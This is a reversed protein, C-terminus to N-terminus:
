QKMLMGEEQGSSDVGQGSSGYSSLYAISELAYSSGFVEQSGSARVRLLHPHSKNECVNNAPMNRPVRKRSIPFCLDGSEMLYCGYSLEPPMEVPRVDFPHDV